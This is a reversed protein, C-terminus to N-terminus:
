EKGTGDGPGEKKKRGPRAALAMGCVAAVFPWWPIGAAGSNPLSALPIDAMTVTDVVKGDVTVAGDATVVIAIDEAYDYGKPAEKEHLIYTKGASLNVAHGTGDTTWEDVVSGADDLLQLAAGSLADKGDTKQIKATVGSKEDVMTVQSVPGDTTITGDNGVTFAIDEAALYGSPASAEHLTYSGPALGTTETKDEATTWEHVVTDGQKIQLRAGAVYSGEPDQKRISVPFSKKSNTFAVTVSEGDDVTEKATALATETGTNEKRNTSILGLGNADTVKFSAAYANADETVQYASDIPLGTFPVSEGDKLELTVDAMGSGDSMFSGSTGYTYTKNKGLGTMSVHFTFATETDEPCSKTLTFGGTSPLEYGSSNSVQIRVVETRDEEEITTVDLPGTLYASIKGGSMTIIRVPATLMNYGDPAKTEYLYYTTSSDLAGLNLIGKEDTTGTLIPTEGDKPQDDSIQTIKYLAFEAGSLPNTKLGDGVKLVQVGKAPQNKVVLTVNGDAETIVEAETSEIDSFTWSYTKTKSDYTSVAKQITVQGTASITLRIDYDAQQYTTPTGTEHLYYTGAALHDLDIKPIVGNEDTVLTEFGDKPYYDRMPNGTYYDTTENYLAFTVGSIAENNVADKKVATLTFARNSITVTPMNTATPEAVQKISYCAGEAAATEGNVYLTGNEVKITLSDILSLYKYPAATETLIYEEGSTLYAVAILGAEDSTFTKKSAENGSKVLTFKAGELPAGSLDTKVLKIGPRTNTVTDTRSNVKTDALQAATLEQRSYNATYDFRDSYGHENTTGGVTLTGNEEIKTVTCGDGLTVKGAEDVTYAGSLTIEYVLYDNLTKGNTLEPFFWNLSTATKGLQRVSGDALTLSDDDGKVYVAFYIYDHDDMFAADSWVKKVTLGYGHQNHVIVTEDQGDIAGANATEGVPLTERSGRVYDILNYGAPIEDSREIVMFATGDTLGPIEISYGAPIKDAAGGPSTHFTAQEQETKVLVSESTNGLESFVTKGTSMFGGNQYICYEGAPDKVYYKGTNYVTYNDGNKGIYIRFRFTTDDEGATIETTKEFERWLKKTVILSHQANESVHNNYIVKKQGSVTTEATKYDRYGDKTAATGENETGNITVKDYTGTDQGCEVIYYETDEGPLKISAIQGPKLYFVHEYTMGNVTASAAYSIPVSADQSDTVSFDGTVPQYVYSTTSDKKYFIQFPFLMGSDTTETGSVEKELLVEGATYPALNFRMHINSAGAGREMYYMKMTHGSYDKFVTGGDKFIGDLWADVEDQTKDPYQAKYATEFRERLTSEKGNEIVKGTRFNVSGDLASHIGGLDLVLVDDIYLWFDDDGSFEFILDHGWADLGSESQMFSADMEMGFFYIANAPDTNAKNTFNIKYLKEGYRPDLSSLMNGHIDTDNVWNVYSNETLDNYPFFQGHRRTVGNNESTTAIQDYVVFDGVEYTGSGDPREVGYWKDSESTILHAFNQTSDFEFYGTEQYTSLLFQHNVTMADGYLQGLSTGTLASTPYEEGEAIYKNLLNKVGNWQNYTTNQLVETQTACNSGTVTGTYNQMKLTIGYSTHDITAVQSLKDESDDPKMIAFYFTDAKSLPASTLQYNLAKLASYDYYPDDWAIITSYYDGNRRGNMNIGITNDSLFTGGSVQPAIYKGSYANQLEYYYNPTGDDNYYETFDWLMTNAKTGVWSITDGSEYAKVLMGDHDIAYYDYQLTNENWIRTYIIVQDGNKVDYDINGNEDTDGSVSVKTATYTVFDDENLNSLEAFSLWCSADNGTTLDARSQFSGNSKLAYGNSSFKYKGSYTGTGEEVTIICNDDTDSAEVLSISDSAIRLYKLAGNVETTIYYETGSIYTFTWMQINSDKAVYVNETRSIPDVKITMTKGSLRTNSNAATSTMANGSTTTAYIIGYSKGNLGYPDSKLTKTLIVKNNARANQVEGILGNGSYGWACKNGNSRQYYIYFAGSDTHQEVTFAMTAEDSFEFANSTDSKYRVYKKSGNEDITYIYFQNDTGEVADFYYLAASSIDSANTKAICNGNLSNKAYYRLNNNDISVYFMNGDLESVDAATELANPEVVAYVSFEDTMFKLEATTGESNFATAATEDNGSIDTEMVEVGEAGFHVVKLESVPDEPADLLKISMSVNAQPEIKQDGARIEIDFLHAYNDKATEGSVAEVAKQYYEQYRADEPLIEEAKLEADNPIGADEGYTVTIEWTDGKADIVTKIIQADTVKITFVEGTKMTVTLSEESEFPLMSILAWDGSEVTQANIEEIQEETLEASYECELGNAEKIEGVTSDTEVKGVWVLDPNSFEVSEVDAVFKRTEESVTVDSLTLADEDTVEASNVDNEGSNTGEIIGLVEILDTFSVFGGGPLSFDYMKGNVLYSFDVTYVIAYVSFSDSEFSVANKGDSSTADNSTSEITKGDSKKAVVDTSGSDTVHVVYAEEARNLVPSIMKVHIPKLPETKTGNPKTFTIDMAAAAGKGGAADIAKDLIDQRTVPTVAMSTGDEFAGEEADVHVMVTGNETNVKQDFTVAPMAASSPVEAEMDEEAPAEAAQAAEATNQQVDAQEAIQADTGPSNEISQVADTSVEESLVSVPNSFVTTTFIVAVLNLALLARKANRRKKMSIRKNLTGQMNSNQDTKM